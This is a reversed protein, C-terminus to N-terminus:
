SISQGDIYQEFIALTQAFHNQGLGLRFYNGQLGFLESPLTLIGTKKVLTNSWAM